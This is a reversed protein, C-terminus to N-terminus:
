AQRLLPQFLQEDVGRFRPTKIPALLLSRDARSAFRSVGSGGAIAQYCDVLMKMVRMPEGPEIYVAHGSVDVVVISIWGVIPNYVQPVKGAVFVRV